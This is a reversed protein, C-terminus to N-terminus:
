SIKCIDDVQQELKYVREIVSNHKEVRTSLTEIKLDIIAIQNQITANIGTVDDKLDEIDNKLMERTKNGDKKASLLWTGISVLLTVAASILACQVESSM